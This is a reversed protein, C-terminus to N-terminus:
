EIAHPSGSIELALLDLLHTKGVGPSGHLLAANLRKKRLLARLLTAIELIPGILPLTLDIM